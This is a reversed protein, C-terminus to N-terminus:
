KPKPKPKPEVRPRYTGRINQWAGGGIGPTAVAGSPASASATLTDDDEVISASLNIAGADTWSNAWATGFSAGWHCGVARVTTWSNAWAAGFSTGWHNLAM